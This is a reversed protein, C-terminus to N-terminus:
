GGLVGARTLTRRCQSRGARGALEVAGRAVRPRETPADAVPAVVAVLANDQIRVITEGPRWRIRQRSRTHKRTVGNMDCPSPCGISSHIRLENFWAFYESGDAVHVGGVAVGGPDGSGAASCEEGNNM